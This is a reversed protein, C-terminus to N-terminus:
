RRCFVVADGASGCARYHAGLTGLVAAQDAARVKNRWNGWVVVPARGSAIAQQLTEARVMVRYRQEEAGTIRGTLESFFVTELGPWAPRDALANYGAWTSIVPQGPSSLERVRQALTEVRDIRWRGHESGVTELERFVGPVALAVYLGLAGAVLLGAGRREEAWRAIAGLAPVGGAVLLPVAVSFYQTFTPTPLLLITLLGAALAWALADARRGALLGRASAWLAAGALAVLVCWQPSAFLRGLVGAKQGFDAVAGAEHRLTHYIWVDFWMRDGARLLFYGSLGGALIAGGALAALDRGVPRVLSRSVWVVWAAAIPVLAVLYLRVQAAAVLLAGAALLTLVSPRREWRALLYFGALLLAAALAHTKFITFWALTLANFALLLAALWAAGPGAAGAPGLRERAYRALLAAVLVAGAVSLLRAVRFDAGLAGIWAAYAYASLPMQNYFFDLYPLEGRLIARAAYLYFGEDGDFNRGLALTGSTVGAVAVAGWAPPGARRSAVALLALAALAGGGALALRHLIRAQAATDEHLRRGLLRETAPPWLVLAEAVLIGALLV